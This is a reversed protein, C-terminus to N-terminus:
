KDLTEPPLPQWASIDYGAKGVQWVEEENMKEIENVCTDILAHAHEVDVDHLLKLECLEVLVKYLTVLLGMEKVEANDM